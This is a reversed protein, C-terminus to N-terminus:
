AETLLTRLHDLTTDPLGLLRNRDVDSLLELADDIPERLDSPAGSGLVAALDSKITPDLRSWAENLADRRGYSLVELLAKIQPWTAYLAIHHPDIRVIDPGNLHLSGAPANGSAPIPLPPPTGLANAFAIRVNPHADQLLQPLESLDALSNLLEVLDSDDCEDVFESPEISFEEDFEDCVTIETSYYDNEYRVERTFSPM